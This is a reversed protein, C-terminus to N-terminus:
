SSAARRHRGVGRVGPPRRGASAGGGRNPGLGAGRRHRRRVRRAHPPRRRRRPNGRVRPRRTGGGGAGPPPPFSHDPPHDRSRRSRRHGPCRDSALGVAPVPHRVGPRSRAGATGVAVGRPVSPLPHHATPEPRRRRDRAPPPRAGNTVYVLDAVPDVTVDLIDIGLHVDTVDRTALDVISISRSQRGWNLVYAANRGPHWAVKRPHHGVPIATGIVTLSRRDLVVLRGAGSEAYYTALLHPGAVALGHVSGPDPWTGLSITRTSLTPEARTSLAQTM